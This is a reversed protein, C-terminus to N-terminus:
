VSFYRFQGVKNGATEVFYVQGDTGITMATPGSNATPISYFNVRHSRFLFQGIKNKATDTFYFNGDVGPVIADPTMAGTLPYQATIQGNTAMRVLALGKQEVIWLGNDTAATIGMPYANKDKLAYETLTRGDVSLRGVSDTGPETFWLADDPGNTIFQPQANGTLQYQTFRVHPKMHIQEVRWVSNTGPDTVWMNGDSGLAIGVPKASSVPLTFETYPPGAVTVQAVRGVNTETFWVNLAPGPGSAVGNPGAKRTPTVSESFKGGSGLEAIKSSRNETVFLNDNAGLAIGFPESSKTPLPYQATVQPPLTPSPTPTGSTIPTGKGCAALLGGTLIVLALRATPLL